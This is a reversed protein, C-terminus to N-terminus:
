AAGEGARWATRPVKLVGVAALPVKAAEGPGGEGM